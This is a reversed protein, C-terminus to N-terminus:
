APIEYGSVHLTISAGSGALAQLSAGGAVLVHGAIDIDAPTGAALSLAPVVINAAGAAGGPPVLYISVTVAGGATNIVTVKRLIARVKASTTYYAIAGTTLQVGEVLKRPEVM